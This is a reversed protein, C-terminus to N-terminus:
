VYCCMGYFRFLFLEKLRNALGNQRFSFRRRSVVLVQGRQDPRRDLRQRDYRSTNATFRLQLVCDHDQEVVEAGDGMTERFKPVLGAGPVAAVAFVDPERNAMGFQCNARCRTQRHKQVITM